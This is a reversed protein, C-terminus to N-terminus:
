QGLGAQAGQDGRPHPARGGGRGDQGGPGPRQDLGDAQDPDDAEGPPVHLVLVSVLSVKSNAPEDQLSELLFVEDEKAAEDEEEEEKEVASNEMLLNKRTDRRVMTEFKADGVLSRTKGQYGNQSSVIIAESAAISSVEVSYSRQFSGKAKPPVQAVANAPAIYSSESTTTMHSSESRDPGTM